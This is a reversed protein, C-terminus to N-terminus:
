VVWESCVIFCFLYGILYYFSGVVYLYQAGINLINVQSNDIFIALFRRAFVLVIASFVLGYMTVIKFAARIGTKIRNIKGAGKNQAIYISLANSFDQMPLFAFSEIKVVAAFAAMTAVGFSNVLGQIMLIGFNMISQQMSSLISYNGIMKTIKMNFKIHDRGLRILPMKILCYIAIGIGSFAQAIITAYAAGVIGMDLPVIFTIDLVINIIASIILFILPIISNGVSRMISAFYNYISTFAIGYFTIKLYVKTDYLIEDPIQLLILIDDIYLIVAVNIILTLLGILCFSTFFSNKLEDIKNAGYLNSFVTGSGICSGIIISTLLVMVAFSSGVAGLAEPGIFRGVIISDAVNYLQQFLNGIIMPITFKILVKTENGQTLDHTM